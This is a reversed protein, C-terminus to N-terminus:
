AAPSGGEAAARQTILRGTLRGAPKPDTAVNDGSHRGAARLAVANWAASIPNVVSRKRLM